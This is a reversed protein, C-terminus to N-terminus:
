KNSYIQTNKYYIKTDGKEYKFLYDSLERLKDRSILINIPKEPLQKSIRFAYGDKNVDGLYCKGDTERIEKCKELMKEETLGISYLYDKVAQKKIIYSTLVRIDSKTFTHYNFEGEDDNVKDTYILNYSNNLQNDALFWGLQLNGARNIFQLEYAYTNLTKNSWKVAAKEDCIYRNESTAFVCDIGKIQKDKKNTRGFSKTLYPYCNSDLFENIIECARNDYNRYSEYSTYGKPTKYKSMTTLNTYQIITKKKHYLAYYFCNYTNFVCM